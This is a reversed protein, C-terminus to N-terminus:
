VILPIWIHHPIVVPIVVPIHIMRHRPYHVLDHDNVINQNKTNPSENKIELDLALLILIPITNTKPDPVNGKADVTDATMTKPPHARFEFCVCFYMSYSLTSSLCFLPLTFRSKHKTDDPSRSRRHDEMDVDRHFRRSKDKSRSESSPMIEFTVSSRM